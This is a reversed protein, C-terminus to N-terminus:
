PSDLHENGNLFDGRRSAIRIRQGWRNIWSLSHPLDTGHAATKILVDPCALANALVVVNVLVADFVLDTTILSNNLFINPGREWSTAYASCAYESFSSCASFLATLLKTTEYNSIM